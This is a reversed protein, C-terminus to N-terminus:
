PQFAGEWMAHRTEVSITLYTDELFSLVIRLIPKSLLPSLASVSTDRVSSLLSILVM